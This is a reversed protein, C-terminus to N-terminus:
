QAYLLHNQHFVLAVALLRLVNDRGFSGAQFDYFTLWAQISMHGM